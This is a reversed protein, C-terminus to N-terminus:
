VYRGVIKSSISNFVFQRSKAQDSIIETCINRDLVFYFLYELKSIKKVM